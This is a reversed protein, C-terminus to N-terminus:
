HNDYVDVFGLRLKRLEDVLGHFALREHDGFRALRKHPDNRTSAGAAGWRRPNRAPSIATGSSKLLIAAISIAAKNAVPVHLEQEVVSPRSSKRTSGRTSRLPSMSLPYRSSGIVLWCATSDITQGREM